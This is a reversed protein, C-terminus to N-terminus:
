EGGSRGRKAGKDEPVWARSYRYDKVGRVKFVGDQYLLDVEDRTAGIEVAVQDPDMHHVDILKHVLESMRAAVHTGKARNMRVTMVMATAADVDMVVVPVLYNYKRVLKNSDIALRTRHWGDIVRMERSVLIPHVWGDRLISREILRLEQTLVVNPNYDNLDLTRADVWRVRDIPEKM